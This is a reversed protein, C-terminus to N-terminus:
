HLPRRSDVYEHESGSKEHLDMIVWVRCKASTMWPKVKNTRTWVIEM